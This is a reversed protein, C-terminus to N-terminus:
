PLRHRAPYRFAIRGNHCGYPDNALPHLCAGQLPWTAGPQLERKLTHVLYTRYAAGQLTFELLPLLSELQLHTKAGGCLSALSRWFFLAGEGATM